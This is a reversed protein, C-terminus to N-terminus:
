AASFSNCHGQPNVPGAFLTCGGCYEGSAPQKYFECVDCTQSPDPAKEVYEFNERVEIQDQTLGSTDDCSRPEPSGGGSQATGAAQGGGEGEGGGGCGSLLLVAGAGALGAKLLFLRRTTEHADM